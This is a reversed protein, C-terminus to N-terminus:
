RSSAFAIQASWARGVGGTCILSAGQTELLVRALVVRLGGRPDSGERIGRNDGPVSPPSPDAGRAVRIELSRRSGQRRGTVEVTDGACARTLAERLLHELAQLTPRPECVLDCSNCTTVTLRPASGAAGATATRWADRVMPGAVLRERKAGLRDVMLATMAATIALAEESSKLLRGGSESIHHAYEQYRANGLPGHLEHLMVDSFGIVANLPTRLEHSMQAMLESVGNATALPAEAQAERERGSLTLLAAAAGTAMLFALHWAPLSASADGAAVASGQWATTLIIGLAGLYLTAAMRALRAGELRRRWLRATARGISQLTAAWASSPSQGPHPSTGPTM